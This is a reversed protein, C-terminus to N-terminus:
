VCSYGTMLRLLKENQQKQTQPQSNKQTEDVMEIERRQTIQPIRSNNENTQDTM